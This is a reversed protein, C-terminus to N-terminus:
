LVRFRKSLLMKEKPQAPSVIGGFPMQAILRWSDPLQWETKVQDDILPNYHQLSAGIGSERLVTWTAFQLMGNQQEAWVQFNASYNQYNISYEKTIATDDFFLLTGYGAAFANIKQETAGINEKPTITRLIQLTIDWLRIHNAGTLLVMCPSQMNYATPTTQLVQRLKKELEQSTISIQNNISYESHRNEFTELISNM